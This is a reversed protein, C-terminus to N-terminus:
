QLKRNPNAATPNTVQAWQGFLNGKTRAQKTLIVTIAKALNNLFAQNNLLANAIVSVDVEIDIENINGSNFLGQGEAM